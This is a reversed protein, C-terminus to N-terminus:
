SESSRQPTRDDPETKPPGVGRQLVGSIEALDYRRHGGLTRVPVLRGERDWNRLTAVSVGLIRAAEQISVFESMM